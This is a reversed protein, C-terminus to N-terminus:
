VKWKTIIMQVQWDPDTLLIRQPLDIGNVTTYHLYSIHWGDQYLHLLHNYADLSERYHQHPAPLGRLWYYLNSVPLNWGTQQQLLLEPSSATFTQQKSTVLTVQGNAGQTGSLQTRGIGLPGFLILSYNANQQQWDYYANWGSKATRAAINGQATWSQLATLQALRTQKPLYNNSTPQTGLTSCATLFLMILCLITPAVPPRGSQFLEFKYNHTNM